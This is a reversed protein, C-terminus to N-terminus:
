SSRKTVWFTEGNHNLFFLLVIQLFKFFHSPARTRNQSLEPVFARSLPWTIKFSILLLTLTNRPKDKRDVSRCM